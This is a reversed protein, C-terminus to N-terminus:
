GHEYFERSGAPTTLGSELDQEISGGDRESPAFLGGGGPTEFVVRDGRNLETRSKAAITKGNVQDVGARGPRGGLLGRPPYHIREHRITMTIPNDARAEFVLRQANGGRFKGAGGSDAIFSKERVLLPVQHEFAEIPQNSVNSPFSLCGPGDGKSRAGHGGNMFFMKVFNGRGDDYRGSFYVNWLPSGSEAVIRDQMIPALAGFIAPPVYHGSLHRGWVPAPPTANLLCGEPATIHIPALSGANNPADPDVLCKVAYRAYAQTYNLVSNIPWPVQQSTGAFDVTLQDGDIIVKCEIRLPIDVGDIDFGDSYEGDPLASIAARMSQESRAIIEDAVPSLDALGEEDMLTMLKTNCDRYAAFQARIDGLTEGPQRLNETLFDMVTSNDEGAVVIKCIPICLGEEFCDKANPSPAGGIDVTHATSAAFAVLRDGRFIPHVMSIDNLHGTGIWANNSIVVDGPALRTRPFRELVAALTRPLTGLFSPISRKSQTLQRGQADFLSFAMDYNDRVVVSFAARLFTEAVQDVIGDLRRWILGLRVANLEAKSM